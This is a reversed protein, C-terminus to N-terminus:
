RLYIVGLHTITQTGDHYALALRGRRIAGVMDAVVGTRGRQAMNPHPAERPLRPYGEPTQTSLERSAFSASVLYRVHRSIADASAPGFFQSALMHPQIIHKIVAEDREWTALALPACLPFCLLLRMHAPIIIRPSAAYAVGFTKVWMPWLSFGTPLGCVVSYWV